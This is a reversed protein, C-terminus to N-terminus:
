PRLDKDVRLGILSRAAIDRRFYMKDFSISEVGKYALRVADALSGGYATVSFVRGGATVLSGDSRRETGAHFIQVDLASEKPYDEFRIIDGRSFTEPYGGSTVVVNCAFGPRLGIDVSSLSGTCCALLIEALDCEPALLMMLSQTEPDGFRANYELVRPGDPTLMIGTFLMGRFIRGESRMGDLTPQVISDEIHRIQTPSVFPVPAYVGMGGTNLGHNGELIRKHDQGAPLSRFSKGDCFTLISVEDGTLLEEIVVTNGASGFKDGLMIDSLAEHAESLTKPLIVGKGAALGDAKIVIRSANVGDLYERADDYNNFTVHSATPIRYKNMFHKSYAKSGEIMAADKSPAFCHIGSGEFYGQIGNIVADDPGIVVLVIDLSKALRVLGVYDDAKVSEVNSVGPLAATGPNGPVVFVHAVSSSTSLKWALSHERAGRGVLLVNINTSHM